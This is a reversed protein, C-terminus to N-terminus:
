INMWGDMWGNRLGEKRGDMWIYIYIFKSSVNFM